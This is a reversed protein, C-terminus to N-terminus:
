DGALADELVGIRIGKSDLLKAANFVTEVRTVKAKYYNKRACLSDREIVLANVREVLANREALLKGYTDIVEVTPKNPTDM